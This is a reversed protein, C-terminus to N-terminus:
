KGLRDMAAALKEVQQRLDDVATADAKTKKLATVDRRTSKMAAELRGLRTLVESQERREDDTMISQDASAYRQRANRAQRRMRKEHARGAQKTGDWDDRRQYGVRQVNIWTGSGPHERHWRRLASFWPARNSVFDRGLIRDLDDYHLITGDVSDEM